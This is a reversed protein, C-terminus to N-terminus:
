TPSFATLLSTFLEATITLKPLPYLTSPSTAGAEGCVCTHRQTPGCPHRWMAQYRGRPPPLSIPDTARGGGAHNKWLLPSLLEWAPSSPTQVNSANSSSPKCFCLIRPGPLGTTVAPPDATPFCFYLADHQVSKPSCQVWVPLSASGSETVAAEYTLPHKHKGKPASIETETALLQSKNEEKGERDKLIEVKNYYQLMALVHLAWPHSSNKM